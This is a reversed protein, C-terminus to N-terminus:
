NFLKWIEIINNARLVGLYMGNPSVKMDLVGSNRSPLNEILDGKFSWMKITNDYTAATMFCSDDNTACISVKETIEIKQSSSHAKIKKILKIQGSSFDYIDITGTKAGTILNTNQKNFCMGDIADGTNITALEFYDKERVISIVKSVMPVPHNKLIERSLALLTGDGSMSLTKLYGEVQLKRLSDFDNFYVISPKDSWCTEWKSVLNRGDPSFILDSYGNYELTGIIVNRELDWCRIANDQMSGSVLKTADPSIAITQISNKHGEFRKIIEGSKIHYFTIIRKEGASAITRSNPMFCICNDLETFCKIEAILAPQCRGARGSSEEVEDKKEDAEDFGKLSLDYEKRKTEDLLVKEAELLIQCKREAEQRRQLDPANVRSQWTKFSATLDSKLEETTSNIELDLEKYYNIM